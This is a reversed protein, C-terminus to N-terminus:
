PSKFPKPEIEGIELPEDLRAAGAPLDPVTIDATAVAVPMPLINGNKDRDHFQARFQYRGPEVDEIRFLGGAEVEGAYRPLRSDRPNKSEPILGAGYCVWNSAADPLALLGTVPRGRGGLQVTTAAGGELDIPTLTTGVSMTLQDTLHLPVQRAATVERPPLREFVFRGAEDASAYAYVYVQPPDIGGIAPAPTTLMIM